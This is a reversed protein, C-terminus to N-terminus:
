EGSGGSANDDTETEAAGQQGGNETETETGEVDTEACAAKVAARADRVAAQESQDETKDAANEAQDETKDAPSEAEDEGKTAAGETQDEAKDAATAAQRETTDETRDNQRLTALAAKVTDCATTTTQQVKVPETSVPTSNTVAPKIALDSVVEGRAQGQLTTTRAVTNVGKGHTDSAYAASGAAVLVAAFGALIWRSRM